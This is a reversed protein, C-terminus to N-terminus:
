PVAASIAAASRSVGSPRALVGGCKALTCGVGAGSGTRRPFPQQARRQARRDREASHGRDLTQGFLGDAAVRAARRRDDAAAAARLGAARATARELWRQRHDLGPERMAIERDGVGLAALVVLGKALDVGRDALIRAAAVASGTSTSAATLASLASRRATTTSM